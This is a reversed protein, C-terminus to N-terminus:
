DAPNLSPDGDGIWSSDFRRFDTDHPLLVGPTVSVNIPRNMQNYAGRFDAHHRSFNAKTLHHHESAAAMQVVSGLMLLAGFITLATKHMTTEM